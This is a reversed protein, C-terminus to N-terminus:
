IQNLHPFGSFVYTFVNVLGSASYKYSSISLPFFFMLYSCFVIIKTSYINSCGYKSQLLTIEIFKLTNGLLFLQDFRVPCSLVPCINIAFPGQQDLYCNILYQM